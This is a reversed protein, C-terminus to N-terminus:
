AAVASVLKVKTLFMAKLVGETLSAVTGSIAIPGAAPTGSVSFAMRITSHALSAPVIAPTFAHLLFAEWNAVHTADQNQLRRKLLNRARALRGAVTGVPWGLQVAAEALTEGELYCLIIPTRYKAPLRNVEEHLICCVDKPIPDAENTPPEQTLPLERSQRRTSRSRAKLATRHAVCYLWNALLERRGLSRAKRLLVLFTAQFADECDHLNPLARRCVAFVMPGHRRLLLTFAAEDGKALFRELLQADELG